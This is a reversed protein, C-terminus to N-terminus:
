RLKTCAGMGPVSPVLPATRTPSHRYDRRTKCAGQPVESISVSSRNDAWRAIVESAAASSQLANNAHQIWRLLTAVLFLRDRYREWGLFRRCVAGRNKDSHRWLGQLKQLCEELVESISVSPRNGAWRGIIEEM